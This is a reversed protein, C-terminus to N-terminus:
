LAKITGIHSREIYGNPIVLASEKSGTENEHFRGETSSDRDVNLILGKEITM